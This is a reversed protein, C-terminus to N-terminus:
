YRAQSEHLGAGAVASRGGIISSIMALLVGIFAIFVIIWASQAIAMTQPNQAGQQAASGAEQGNVVIATRIVGWLSSSLFLFMSLM